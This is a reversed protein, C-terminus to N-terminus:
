GEESDPQSSKLKAIRAKLAAVKEDALPTDKSTNDKKAWEPLKEVRAPKQQYNRKNTTNKAQKERKTQIVKDRNKVANVAEEATKLQRQSWDNAITDAFNKTITANEKVVLLYHILINVVENPLGSLEIIDTIVRQESNAVYGHRQKKISALFDMCNLSKAVKVLTYAPDSYPLAVPTMELPDNAVAATPETTKETQLQIKQQTLQKTKQLEEYSQLMLKMLEDSDIVGTSLDTAYMIYPVIDEESVGYQVHLTLIVRKVEDTLFEKSVFQSKLLSYLLDWDFEKDSLAPLSSKKDEIIHHNRYHDAQYNTVNFPSQFATAFDATMETVEDYEKNLTYRNRLVDFRNHGIQNILMTSLLPDKFFRNPAVPAILELKYYNGDAKELQYTKLLGIGELRIKAQYFDAIGINLIALIDALRLWESHYTSPIIEYFLTTYLTTAHQGIFPQYLQILYRLDLPTIWNPQWVQLADKPTLKSWAYEMM